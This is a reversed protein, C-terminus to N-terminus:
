TRIQDQNGPMTHADDAREYMCKVIPQEPASSIEDAILAFSIAFSAPLFVIIGAWIKSAILDNCSSSAFSSSLVKFPSNFPLIACVGGTERGPFLRFGRAEDPVGRM